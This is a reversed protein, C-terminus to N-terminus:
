RDVFRETAWGVIADLVAEDITVDIAGYEELLGTTAPQMLHNLGEFVLVTADPNGALAERMPGESQAADVQFDLGGFLALTPVDLQELYPRPDFTLFARFSPATTADQQAAILAELEEPSPRQDAPANALEAEIRERVLARAGELDESQLLPQLARLFALQDAVAADIVDQPAGQGELTRVILLENQVELVAFGDVSPGAMLIAFAVDDREAAVYPALYGGQSHGLLGMADADVRPHVALLDLGAGVDAALDTFAADGDSGTSGGVGRDDVRLVAFGARTLRDALLLFPTHGVIEENRDQPGSGTILLVAPVRDDGEPLTLTGALTVDGSAFTVEEELYPFPPQPEQPRLNTAETRELTFPFGQGGQTFTGEVADGAITGEFVPDGPIGAMGFRLADGDLTVPDLPFAILGQAPIDLTGALAAGELTFTARVDLAGGPLTIAGQWTGVPDTQAFAAGVLLAAALTLSRLSRNM